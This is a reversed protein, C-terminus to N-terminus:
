SYVQLTHLVARSDICKCYMLLHSHLPHVTVVGGESSDVPNVGICFLRIMILRWETSILASEGEFIVALPRFHNGKLFLRWLASIIKRPTWDFLMFGLHIGLVWYIFPDSPNIQDNLLLLLIDYLYILFFNYLFNWCNCLVLFTLFGESHIGFLRRKLRMRM